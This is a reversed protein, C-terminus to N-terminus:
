GVAAKDLKLYVTDTEVRDIASVPLTVERKGWLHGEMLVLHTIRGSTPEILFEGVKGIHGDAAEVNAGRHLALEGPPIHEEEVPVTKPTYSAYTAEFAYPDAGFHPGGYDAGRKDVYHTEVFPEMGALEDRSCRLRVLDHATEVVQDVPVLRAESHRTEVVIHTVGRTTPNAIIAVSKGCPGDACEVRAELPVDRM